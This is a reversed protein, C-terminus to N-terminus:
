NIPLNIMAQTEIGAETNVAFRASADFETDPTNTIISVAGNAAAVGFLTPQPGKLVEVRAIDFLAASSVTKKSIDFGDQYVSIRPTASVSATDDTIGRINFSPLSVAQEQIVVNPLVRSLDDLETTNTRELFEASIVDMTAAVDLVSQDRKQATVIIEEMASTDAYSWASATAVAIAIAKVGTTITKM